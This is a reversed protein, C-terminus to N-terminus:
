VDMLCSLLVLNVEIDLFRIYWAIHNIRPTSFQKRILYSTIHSLTFFRIIWLTKSKSAVYSCNFDVYIANLDFACSIYVCPQLEYQALEILYRLRKTLHMKQGYLFGRKSQVCMLLQEVFKMVTISNNALWHWCSTHFLTASLSFSIYCYNSILM